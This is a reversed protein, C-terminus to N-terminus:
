TERATPCTNEGRRAAATQGARGLLSAPPRSKTPDATSGKRPGTPPPRGTARLRPPQRGRERAQAAPGCRHVHVGRAGRGAPRQPGGRHWRLLDADAPAQGTRNQKGPHLGLWAAWVGESLQRQHRHGYVWGGVPRHQCPTQAALLRNAAVTARHPSEAMTVMESATDSTTPEEWTGFLQPDLGTIDGLTRAGVTRRGTCSSVPLGPSTSGNQPYVTVSLGVRRFAAVSVLNEDTPPTRAYTAGETEPPPTPEAPHDTPPPSGGVPPLAGLSPLGRAWSPLLLRGTGVGVLLAVLCVVVATGRPVRGSGRGTRARSRSM